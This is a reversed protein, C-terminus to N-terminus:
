VLLTKSEQAKTLAEKVPEPVDPLDFMSYWRYDSSTSDLKPKFTQDCRIVHFQWISHWPPLPGNATTSVPNYTDQRHSFQFSTFDVLGVEREAIRHLAETVTEGIFQRGGIVFWEGAYAGENRKILLIKGDDRQVIFDVTPIPLNRLGAHYTSTGLKPNAKKLSALSPTASSSEYMDLLNNENIFKQHYPHMDSPLSKFYEIESNESSLRLKSLPDLSVDYVLSLSHRQDDISIDDNDIECPGILGYRSVKAANGLEKQVIRIIAKEIKEKFRIGGGPFHWLGRYPEIDRKVLLIGNEGRVCVDVCSRVVNNYVWKYDEDSLYTM